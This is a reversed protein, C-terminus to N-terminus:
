VSKEEDEKNENCRKALYKIKELVDADDEVHTIGSLLDKTEIPNNRVIINEMGNFMHDLKPLGNANYAVMIEFERTISDPTIKKISGSETVGEIAYSDYKQLEIMKKFYKEFTKVMGSSSKNKIKIELDYEDISNDDLEDELKQVVDVSEERESSDIYFIGSKISQFEKLKEFFDVPPLSTLRYFSRKSIVAEDNLINFADIYPFILERHSFLFSKLLSRNFVKNAKDDEVLLLGRQKDLTFFVENKVGQHPEIYSIEEQTEIDINSRRIGHRATSFYGQMININSSQKYDVLNLTVEKNKYKRKNLKLLMISRFLRDMLEHNYRGEVINSGILYPNILEFAKVKLKQKKEEVVM